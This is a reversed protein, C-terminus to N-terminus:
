FLLGQGPIDRTAVVLKRPKKTKQPPVELAKALREAGQRIYDASLEVGISRRGLSEAVVSTTFAGGFNDLVICPVPWRAELHGCSSEWGLTETRKELRQPFGASGYTIHRREISRPGNTSRNGPNVYDTKTLRRWPAGCKPCCGKESTGAKICPAILKPPFTAFHAGKYPRCNVSWVTRKNRTDYQKNDMGAANQEYRNTSGGRDCGAYTAPEEIAEADYFYRPQKTLLFLYEHAKTPRDRTSEPMPNPKHWIIDSRLYWGEAQLAFAIRWPIGLLDKPKLASCRKLRSMGGKASHANKNGSHGGHKGAMSYTDGLNLWLTGDDRLVRWVERFM